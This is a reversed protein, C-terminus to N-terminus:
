ITQKKFYEHLTGAKLIQMPPSNKDLPKVKMKKGTSINWIEGSGINIKLIDNEICFGRISPAEIAPLGLSISNRFFIRSISEAIICSIGLAKLPGAAPRSSGCGFNKGGILIDGKKVKEVWGPRINYMVYKALELYNHGVKVYAVSPMILDTNINDGFKWVNGKFIFSLIFLGM